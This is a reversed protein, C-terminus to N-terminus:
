VAVIGKVGDINEIGFVPRTDPGFDVCFDMVPNVLFPGIEM